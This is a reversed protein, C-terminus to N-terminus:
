ANVEEQRNAFYEQALERYTQAADKCFQETCGKPRLGAFQAAADWVEAQKEYLKGWSM